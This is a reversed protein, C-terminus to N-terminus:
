TCPWAELRVKRDKFWAGGNADFTVPMIPQDTIFKKGMFAVAYGRYIETKNIIDKNMGYFNTIDVLYGKPLREICHGNMDKDRIIYYGPFCNECYQSSECEECNIPCADCKGSESKFSGKPCPILASCSDGTCKKDKEAVDASCLIVSLSVIALLLLSKM